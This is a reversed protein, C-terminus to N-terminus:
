VVGVPQLSENNKKKKKKIKIKNNINAYLAQNM